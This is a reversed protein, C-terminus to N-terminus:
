IEQLNKWQSYSMENLDKNCQNEGALEASEMNEWSAPLDYLFTLATELPPHTLNYVSLEQFTEEQDSSVFYFTM